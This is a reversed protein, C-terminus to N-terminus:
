KNAYQKQLEAIFDLDYEPHKIKLIIKRRFSELNKSELMLGLYKQYAREFDDDPLNILSELKVEKNCYKKLDRVITDITREKALHSDYEDQEVYKHCNPCEIPYAIYGKNKEEETKLHKTIWDPMPQRDQYDGKLHEDLKKMCDDYSYPELKRIWEDKAVDNDKFTPYYVKIREMFHVVEMKKM